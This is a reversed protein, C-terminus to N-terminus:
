IGDESDTEPPRAPQPGVLWIIRVNPNKTHLEIRSVASAVTAGQLPPPRRAVTGPKRRESPFLAQAESARVVPTLEPSPLPIQKSPLLAQAHATAARAPDPEHRQFPRLAIAAVLLLCATAALVATGRKGELFFGVVGRVTTGRSAEVALRERVARRIEAYDREDFPAPGVERLFNRSRAYSAAVARCGRCAALHAEVARSEHAGLEGELHFALLEEVRACTM